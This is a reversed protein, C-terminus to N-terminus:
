ELIVKEEDNKTITGIVYADEGNATLIDLATQVQAAPVVISMGVGMNYTNFMDREPINGTKAILNFIPLM